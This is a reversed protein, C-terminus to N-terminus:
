PYSVTKKVARGNHNMSRVPTNSRNGANFSATVSAPQKQALSRRHRTSMIALRSCPMRLSTLARPVSVISGLSYKSRLTLIPADFV